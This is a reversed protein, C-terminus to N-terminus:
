LNTELSNWHSPNILQEDDCALDPLNTMAPKACAHILQELQSATDVGVVVRDVQKFSLPYALCAQV